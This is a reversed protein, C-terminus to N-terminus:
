LFIPNFGQGQYKHANRAHLKELKDFRKLIFEQFKINKEDAKNYIANKIDKGIATYWALEDYSCGFNDEDSTGDILDGVPTRKIIESPVHLRNAIELVEFKHLSTIIQLDVVMDSSKGFWGSYEFEDRNTTGITIGKFLQAYTFLIQYRLAYSSQAVIDRSPKIKMDGLLLTAITESANVDIFYVESHYARKLMDIYSFDFINNYVTFHINVAYINLDTIHHKKIHVLIALVLSSDVGGSIGLVVDKINHQKLYSITKNIISNHTLEICRLIDTKYLKVCYKLKQENEM